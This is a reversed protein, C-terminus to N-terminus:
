EGFTHGGWDGYDGSTQEDAARGQTKDSFNRQKITQYLWIM